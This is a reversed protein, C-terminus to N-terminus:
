PMTVGSDQLPHQDLALKRLLEFLSLLRDPATDTMAERRQAETM